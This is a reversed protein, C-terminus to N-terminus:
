EKKRGYYFIEVERDIMGAPTREPITKTTKIKELKAREIITKELTKNIHTAWTPLPLKVKDIWIFYDRLSTIDTYKEQYLQNGEANLLSITDVDIILQWGNENMERAIGSFERRDQEPDYAPLRKIIIKEGEIIKEAKPPVPKPPLSYYKTAIMGPKVKRNLVGKAMKLGAREVIMAISEDKFEHAWSPFPLMGKASKGWPSIAGCTTTIQIIQDYRLAYVEEGNKDLMSISEKDLILQWGKKIIEIFQPPFHKKAFVDKEPDYKPLRSIVIKEGSVSKKATTIKDGEHKKSIEAIKQTTKAPQKSGRSKVKLASIAILAAFIYAITGLAGIKEKNGIVWILSGFLILYGVAEWLGGLKEQKTKKGKGM